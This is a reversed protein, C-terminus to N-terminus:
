ESIESFKGTQFDLDLYQFRASAQRCTYRLVSQSIWEPYLGLCENSRYIQEASLEELNFHWISYAVSDLTSFLFGAEDPIWVFHGVQEQDSLDIEARLTSGDILNFISFVAPEKWSHLALMDNESFGYKYGYRGDGSILLEKDGTELNLRLINITSSGLVVGGDGMIHATIYGYQGDTSWHAFEINFWCYGPECNGVDEIFDEQEIIWLSTGVKNEIIMAPELGAWAVWLGNPSFSPRGFGVPKEFPARTPTVTPKSTETPAPTFTKVPTAPVTSTEAPLPTAEPVAGCGVLLLFLLGVLVWHYKM